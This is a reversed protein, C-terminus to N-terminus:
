EDKEVRQQKKKAIGWAALWDLVTLLADFVTIVDFGRGMIWRHSTLATAFNYYAQSCNAFGLVVLSTFDIPTDGVASGTSFLGKSRKFLSVMRILALVSLPVNMAGLYGMVDHHWLDGKSLSRIAADPASHRKSFKQM